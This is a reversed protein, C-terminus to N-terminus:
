WNKEDHINNSKSFKSFNPVTALRKKPIRQAKAQYHPLKQVNQLYHMPDIFNIIRIINNYNSM